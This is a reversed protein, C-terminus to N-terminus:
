PSMPTSTTTGNMPLWRILWALLADTVGTMWSLPWLRSAATTIRATIIAGIMIASKASPSRATGRPQISPDSARPTLGHRVNQFTATLVARGASIAPVTSAVARATPSATVSAM